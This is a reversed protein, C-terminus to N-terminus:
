QSTYDNIRQIVTKSNRAALINYVNKKPKYGNLHILKLVDDFLYIRYGFKSLFSFIKASSAEYLSNRQNVEIILFDIASDKLLGRSGQLVKYEAGEVDIKLVQIKINKKNRFFHDLTTSQVKIFKRDEMEETSIHSLESIKNSSFKEFGIKDSVVQKLPHIKNKLNNLAINENLYIYAAPDPEFAFIEGQNIKSAAILSFDGLGAGVDVFIDDSNLIHQLFSMEQYEPFKTYIIQSGFSSEPYCICKIDTTLNVVAPIHFFLQNKKWWVLRLLTRIKHNKNLPHNLIKKLSRFVEM